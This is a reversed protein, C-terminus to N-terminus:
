LSKVFVNQIKKLEYGLEKYFEHANERLAQSRVRILQHGQSKAWNEAHAILAKGLGKRRYKESIVLGIIEARVKDTLALSTAAHIFGIPRNAENEVVALLHRKESSILQIRELLEEGTVAYGLEQCLSRIEPLDSEELKRIKQGMLGRRHESEM